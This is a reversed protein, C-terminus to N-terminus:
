SKARILKSIYTRLFVIDAARVLRGDLDKYVTEDAVHEMPDTPQPVETVKRRPKRHKQTDAARVLIDDLDKYVTEDAVHEM